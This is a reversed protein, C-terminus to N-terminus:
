ARDPQGQHAPAERARPARQDRPSDEHLGGNQQARTLEDIRRKIDDRRMLRMAAATAVKGHSKYGAAEYSRSANRTAKRRWDPPLDAEVPHGFVYYM